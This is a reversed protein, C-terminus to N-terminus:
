WATDVGCARVVATEKGFWLGRRGAAPARLRGWETGNAPGDLQLLASDVGSLAM